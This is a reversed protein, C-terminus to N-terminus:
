KWYTEKAVDISSILNDIAIRIDFLLQEGAGQPAFTSADTNKLTISKRLRVMVGTPISLESLPVKQLRRIIREVEHRLETAVHSDYHQSTHFALAKRELDALNDVLFKATDRKEKRRERSLTSKHVVVWGGFVILWTLASLWWPPESCSM